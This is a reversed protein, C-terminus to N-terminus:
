AALVHAAALRRNHVRLALTAVDILPAAVGAARAREALDGLVAEVEVPRGAMLDRSLSSTTPAGPSTLVQATGKLRAEPVPHGAAVAVAAAEDLVSLAFREGGPVAVIDGVPSRMLSTVAGISAIFVWKAWMEGVIGAPVIVDAGAERFAAALRRVRDSAAGDLEGVEVEFAPALVRIAGDDDLQTAIRLVGGLVAPGFRGTLREVHEIGNLFPVIVASPAVAPAIDDMVQALAESKVALLIADYGPGLEPATVVGPRYTAEGAASTLRLGRERLLAARRPLALVTVDHGAAALRAALFGGVAGVGAVLFRM